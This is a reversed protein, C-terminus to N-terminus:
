LHLASFSYRLCLQIPHKKEPTPSSAPSLVEPEAQALGPPTAPERPWSQLCTERRISSARHPRRRGAVGSSHCRAPQPSFRGGGRGADGSANIGREPPNVHLGKGRLLLRKLQWGGSIDTKNETPQVYLSYNHIGTVRGETPEPSPHPQRRNQRGRLPSPITTGRM